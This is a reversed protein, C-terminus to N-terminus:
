EGQQPRPQWPNAPPDSAAEPPPTVLSLSTQQPTYGPYQQPPQPTTGWQPSSQPPPPWVGADAPAYSPGPLPAMDPMGVMDRYALACVLFAMPFTALTGLGCVLQSAYILLLFVFVFGAAAPAQGKMAGASRRLAAFLRVGDAMLALSPLLLGYLLLSLVVLLVLGLALASGVALASGHRWNVLLMPGFCLVELGYGGLGLLLSAGLMRGFLPGGRFIDKLEVPVGRVQRVALRFMGGGLFASWLSYVGFFGFEIPLLSTMLANIQAPGSGPSLPTTPLGNVTPLPAPAPAVFGHPFMTTWLVTYFAIVAVFVPVFLLLIAVIWPGMQASFLRWSEGIWGYSVQGTVPSTPGLPPAQGAAPDSNQLPISM